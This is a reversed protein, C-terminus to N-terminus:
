LHFTDVTTRESEAFRKAGLLFQLQRSHLSTTTTRKVAAATTKTSNTMIERCVRLSLCRREGSM